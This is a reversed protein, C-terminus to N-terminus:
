KNCYVKSRDPYTTLGPFSLVTDCLIKYKKLEPKGVLMDMIDDFLKNENDSFEVM